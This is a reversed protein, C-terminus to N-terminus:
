IIENTSSCQAKSLLLAGFNHYYSTFDLFIYLFLYSDADIKCFYGSIKARGMNHLPRKSISPNRSM